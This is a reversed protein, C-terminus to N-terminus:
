LRIIKVFNHQEVKDVTIIITFQIVPRRNHRVFPRVFRHFNVVLVPKWSGAVRGEQRYITRKAGTARPSPRTQGHSNDRTCWFCETTGGCPLRAHLTELRFSSVTRPSRSQKPSASPEHTWIPIRWCDIKMSSRHVSTAFDNGRARGSDHQACSGRATTRRPRGSATTPKRGFDIHSRDVNREAVAVCTLDLLSRTVLVASLWFGDARRGLKPAARVRNM